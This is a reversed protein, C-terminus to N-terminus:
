VTLWLTTHYVIFSLGWAISTTFVFLYGLYRWSGAERVFVISAAFCPLYIMMFVIFSMASAFPIHTKIKELLKDSSENQADGLGYLIGLTAVVVEKAALGTELAVSMRWDFGLPAFFPESFKGIQGLYSNELQVAALQNAQEAASVHPAPSEIATKPYNGAFWILISAM